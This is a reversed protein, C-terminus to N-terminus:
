SIFYTKDDYEIYDCNTSSSLWKNDDFDIGVYKEPFCKQTLQKAFSLQEDKTSVSYIDPQWNNESSEFQFIHCQHKIKDISGDMTIVNCNNFNCEVTDISYAMGAGDDSYIEECDYLYQKLAERKCYEISLDSM